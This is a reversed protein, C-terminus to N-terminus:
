TYMIDFPWRTYRNKWCVYIDTHILCSAFSCISTQINTPTTSLVLYSPERNVNVTRHFTLIQSFFCISFVHNEETPTGTSILTFAAKYIISAACVFM